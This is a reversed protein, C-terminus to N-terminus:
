WLLSLSVKLLRTLNRGREKAGQIDKGYCLAELTIEYGEEMERRDSSAEETEWSSRSHEILAMDTPDQKQNQGNVLYLLSFLYAESIPRSGAYHNYM